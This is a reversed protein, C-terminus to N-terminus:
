DTPSREEQQKMRVMFSDGILNEFEVTELDTLAQLEDTITDAATIIRQYGEADPGERDRRLLVDAQGRVVMLANNIVHNLRSVTALLTQLRERRVTREQDEIQDTIDIFIGFSGLYRNPEVIIPSGLVQVSRPPGEQREIEIRYASAIGQPRLKVQQEIIQWTEASFFEEIVTGEAPVAGLLQNMSDNTYITQRNENLIWVGASTGALLRELLSSRNLITRYNRGTLWCVVIGAVAGILACELIGPFHTDAPHPNFWERRIFFWFAGFLGSAATGIFLHLLRRSFPLAGAGILRTPATLRSGTM